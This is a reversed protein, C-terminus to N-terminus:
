KTSVWEEMISLVSEKQHHEFFHDVLSKWNGITYQDVADSIIQTDYQGTTRLTQYTTGRGTGLGPRFKAHLKNTVGQILRLRKGVSKWEHLDTTRELINHIDRCVNNFNEKSELKYMWHKLLNQQMALMMTKMSHELCSELHHLTGGDSAMLSLHYSWNQCAYNLHEGGEVDNELQARILKLSSVLLVTHYEMSQLFHGKSRASDTLFDRLSAHYPRPSGIDDVSPIILISICRSLSMRVSGSELHLLRELQNITLPRNLFMIAGMVEQFRYCERAKTLVQDYLPDVGKHANTVERLKEQPLGNGDGVFKVLTSVYIFLGDSQEVLRELDGELPWPNPENQMFEALDERVKSLRLRLYERVDDRADYDRLAIRRTKSQISSSNFINRIHREPRSAFLLHFPLRDTADALLRVLQEQVLRDDDGGCEDLGDVVVIVSPISDTISLMPDLILEKLQDQLRSSFISPQKALADRMPKQVAPFFSALQYAFTPFFRTSDSRDQKGRSFFFSVALRGDKDCQEAITQAVTSKGSGAPGELWCVPRSDPEKAWASLQSIVAKRTGEQCTSAHESERERSNYRANFATHEKLM